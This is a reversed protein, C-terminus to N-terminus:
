PNQQQKGRSCQQRLWAQGIHRGGHCSLTRISLLLPVEARVVDQEQPTFREVRPPGPLLPRHIPHHDVGQGCDAGNHLGPSSHAPDRLM